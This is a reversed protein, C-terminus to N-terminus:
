SGATKLMERAHEKTKATISLGGLMRAIEEEREPEGLIRAETITRKNKVEKRIVYHHAAHSAVQPLHTVCLVQRKNAMSKLKQGVVFAVAGGIGTDVEDFIITVSDPGALVQKIALLVRSLEGGSAIKALSRPPEGKNPALDFRVEDLGNYKCDLSTPKDPYNIHILFIVGPMSLEALGKQIKKELLAGSKKRANSLAKAKELVEAGLSMLVKEKDGLRDDFNELLDLEKKIEERKEKMAALTEGYKKKLQGFLYLRAEIEDLRGPEVSLKELYSAFFNGADCLPGRAQGLMKIGEEFSPDRSLAKTLKSALIDVRELISGEGESLGESVEKALAFLFDAHKVRSKEALLNEEERNDEIRASSIEQLQFKLFDLRQDRNGQVKKMEDVDRRLTEYHRFIKEYEMLQIQINEDSDLLAQHNEEHLLLQQDYQGSLDILHPGLAELQSLPVSHGNIYIKSRGEASLHRRIAM